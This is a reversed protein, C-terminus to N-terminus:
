RLMLARGNNYIFLSCEELQVVDSPTYDKKEIVKHGWKNKPDGM